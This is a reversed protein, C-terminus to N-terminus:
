GVRREESRTNSPVPKSHNPQNPKLAPDAKAASASAAVAIAVVVAADPAAAIIYIKNSAALPILGEAIPVQIPTTTPKTAIVGAAPNTVTGCERTIPATAAIILRKTISQRVLDFISSVNSTNGLWPTPPITPI